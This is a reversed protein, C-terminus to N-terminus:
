VNNIEKWEELEIKIETRNKKYYRRIAEDSLYVKYKVQHYDCYYVRSLFHTVRPGLNLGVLEPFDKDGLEDLYNRRFAKKKDKNKNGM